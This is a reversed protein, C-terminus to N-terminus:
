LNWKDAPSARKQAEKLDSEALSAYIRITDLRSHGLMHQLELVSGGNRLFNIAFTHRFRHVTAREVGAREACRMVMKRLGTRDLPKGDKTALVVDEPGLSGRAALYRWLAKRASEGMYIMRHKDGKGHMILLKGTKEDFHKFRLNCLEQARIGTDLLVLLIARDRLKEPRESAIAKGSTRGHWVANNSCANLLLGVDGRSYPEVIARPVKPKAVKGRMIHKIELENEAWTWLSSLATWVNLISKVGLGHEKMQELFVRIQFATIKEFEADEGVAEMFRRFTLTYEKITHKSLTRRKELWYGELADKLKM